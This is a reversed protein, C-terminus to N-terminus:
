IICVIMDCIESFLAVVSVLAQFAVLLAQSLIKEASCPLAMLLAALAQTWTCGTPRVPLLQHDRVM